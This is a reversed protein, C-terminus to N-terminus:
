IEIGSVARRLEEVRQMDEARAKEVERKAIAEPSNELVAKLEKVKQQLAQIRERGRRLQEPASANPGAISGGYRSYLNCQEITANKFERFADVEQNLLYEHFYLQLRALEFRDASPENHVVEDSHHGTEFVWIRGDHIRQVNRGVQEDVRRCFEEFSEVFPM